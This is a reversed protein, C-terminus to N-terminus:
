GPVFLIPCLWIASSCELRKSAKRPLPLSLLSERCPNLFELKCDGFKEVVKRPMSFALKLNVAVINV